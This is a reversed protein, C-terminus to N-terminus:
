RREFHRPPPVVRVGFAHIRGEAMPGFVIVHNGVMLRDDPVFETSATVLVPLHAGRYTDIEFGDDMMKVVFGPRVDEADRAGYGRYFKGGIPLQREEAHRMLKPHLSTRAVLLSSLTVLALIALVSYLLPRRYSFSFRRVLVELLALIAVAVLILVWPLATLFARLGQAGFCTVYWSGNQRMIFVVFSALYTLALSLFVAGSVALATTLVFHWKPRMTVKGGEIASLVRAKLSNERPKQEM